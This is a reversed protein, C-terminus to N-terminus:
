LLVYIQIDDYIMVSKNIISNYAEEEKNIIKKDQINLKIYDYM